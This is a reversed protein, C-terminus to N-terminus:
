VLNLKYDMELMLGDLVEQQLPPEVQVQQALQAVQRVLLGLLVLLVQQERELQALLEMLGLALQALLVLQAGLVM